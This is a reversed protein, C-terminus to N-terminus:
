QQFDFQSGLFTSITMFKRFKKSKQIESQKRVREFV